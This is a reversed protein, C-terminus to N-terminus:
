SKRHRMTVTTGALLGFFGFIVAPVIIAILIRIIGVMIITTKDKKLIFSFIKELFGNIQVPMLIGLLAGIGALFIGWNSSTFSLNFISFIMALIIAIVLFVEVSHKKAYSEIDQVSVGEKLKEKGEKMKDSLSPEKNEKDAM